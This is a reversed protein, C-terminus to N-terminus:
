NKLLTDIADEMYNLSAFMSGVVSSLLNMSEGDLIPPNAMAVTNTLM